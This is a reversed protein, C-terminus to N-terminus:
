GPIFGLPLRMQANPILLAVVRGSKALLLDIPPHGDGLDVGARTRGAVAAEPFLPLLWTGPDDSAPGPRLQQGAQNKLVAPPVHRSAQTIVMAYLRGDGGWQGSITLGLDPLEVFRGQVNVPYEDGWFFKMVLADMDPLYNLGPPSPLM